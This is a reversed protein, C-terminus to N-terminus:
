DHKVIFIYQRDIKANVRDDDDDDDRLFHLHMTMAFKALHFMIQLFIVTGEVIVFHSLSTGIDM